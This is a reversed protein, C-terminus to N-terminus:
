HAVSWFFRRSQLRCESLLYDAWRLWHCEVPRWLAMGSDRNGGLTMLCLLIFPLSVIRMGTFSFSLSSGPTPTLTVTNNNFGQVNNYHTWNGVYSSWLEVSQDDFTIFSVGQRKAFSM